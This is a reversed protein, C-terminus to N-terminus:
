SDHSHGGTHQANDLHTIGDCRGAIYGKKPETSTGEDAKQILIQYEGSPSLPQKSIALLPRAVCYSKGEQEVEMRDIFVAPLIGNATGVSQYPVYVVGRVVPCLRRCLEETVVHVPRGSVPERLRNGTDILGTIREERDGYKLTVTCLDKRHAMSSILEKVGESFGYCGAAAGTIMFFCAKASLGGITGGNMLLAVYYGARTHEYIVLMIGGIVVSVLYIGAVSKVIERVSKLGYAAMAMLSSVAVYTVFGTVAAPLGPYISVVCSWVGGIVAGALLRGKTTRYALVRNLIVLVAMDMMTNVAFVVDIYM